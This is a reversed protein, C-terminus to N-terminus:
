APQSWFLPSESLEAQSSLVTISSCLLFPAKSHFFFSCIGLGKLYSRQTQIVQGAKSLILAQSSWEAKRRSMQPLWRSADPVQLGKVLGPFIKFQTKPLCFLKKVCHTEVDKFGHNSCCVASDNTATTWKSRLKCLLGLGGNNMIRQSWIVVKQRWFSGKGM